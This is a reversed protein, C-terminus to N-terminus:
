KKWKECKLMNKQLEALDDVSVCIYDEFRPEDCYIIEGEQKRVIAGYNPWGQWIKGNWEPMGEPKCGSVWLVSLSALIVRKM